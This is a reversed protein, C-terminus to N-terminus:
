VTDHTLQDAYDESRSHANPASSARDRSHKTWKTEKLFLQYKSFTEGTATTKVCDVLPTYKV